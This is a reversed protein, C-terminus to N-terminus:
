IRLELDKWNEYILCLIYSHVHSKHFILTLTLQNLICISCYYIINMISIFLSGESTAVHINIAVPIIVALSVFEKCYKGGNSLVNSSDVHKFAVIIQM